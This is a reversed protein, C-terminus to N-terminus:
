ASCRPTKQLAQTAAFEPAELLSAIQGKLAEEILLCLVLKVIEEHSFDLCPSVVGYAHSPGTVPSEEGPHTM